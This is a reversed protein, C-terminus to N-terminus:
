GLLPAGATLAILCVLNKKCIVLLNSSKLKGRRRRRWFSFVFFFAQLAM